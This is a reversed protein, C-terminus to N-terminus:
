SGFSVNILNTQPDLIVHLDENLMKNQDKLVHVRMKGDHGDLRFALDVLDEFQDAPPPLHGPKTPADRYTQCALWLEAGIEGALAKIREITAPDTAEIEVEDLLIVQPEFDMFEKLIEVSHRLREATFNHGVYTHIHRRREVALQVAGWQDLKKEARLLESLIDDYWTRVKDISEELSIHLVKQGALLADIGIDVLFATKGSGARAQILALHGPGPGPHGDRELLKRPSRRLTIMVDSM